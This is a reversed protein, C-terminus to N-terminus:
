IQRSSESKIFLQDITMFIMGNQDMSSYEHFIWSKWSGPPVSPESRIGRPYLGFAFLGDRPCVCYTTSSDLVHESITFSYCGTHFLVYDPSYCRFWGAGFSCTRFAVWLVRVLVLFLWASGTKFHNVDRRPM